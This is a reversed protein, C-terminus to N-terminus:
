ERYTVVIQPADSSDGPTYDAPYFLGADKPPGATIGAAYLRFQIYGSSLRTQVSSAVDLTKWECNANTSINGINSVLAASSYDGADISNGFDVVDVRIANGLGSYSGDVQYQYVKLTASIITSSIPISSLDFGALGRTIRGPPAASEGVQIVTNTPDAGDDNAVHGDINYGSSGSIPYLTSTTYQNQCPGIHEIIDGASYSKLEPKKYPM